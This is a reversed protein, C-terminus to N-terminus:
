CMLLARFIEPNTEDNPMIWIFGLNQAQQSWNKNVLLVARARALKGTRNMSSWPWLIKDHLNCSSFRRAICNRLKKKNRWGKKCKQLVQQNAEQAQRFMLSDFWLVSEPSFGCLFPKTTTSPSPLLWILLLNYSLILAHHYWALFSSLFNPERVRTIAKCYCSYQVKLRTKAPTANCPKSQETDERWIKLVSFQSRDNM